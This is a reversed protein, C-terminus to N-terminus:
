NSQTPWTKRAERWWDAWGKLDHGFRQDTLETLAAIVDGKLWDPEDKRDLREVLADLTDTDRQRLRAAAWIAALTTEFYKESERPEAKWPPTLWEVPVRGTGNLGAAHLLLWRALEAYSYKFKTFTMVDGAPLDKRARKALTFGVYPERTLAMPLTISLVASRYAMYDPKPSLAAELTRLTAKMAEQDIPRTAPPPLPEAPAGPSAIYGTAPGWLAGGDNRYTGVYIDNGAALVDIPREGVFQQVHSWNVGDESRWLAGGAGDSSIAVLHSGTADLDRPLGEGPFSLRQTGAGDYRWVSRGEPGDNLAYLAGKFQTLAMVREGDPWGPVAVAKGGVWEFLKPGPTSWATIGLFCREGFTGLSTIRSLTDKADPVRYAEQWTPGGDKSIQLAGDWGGTGALLEGRCAQMAHVHLAEGETFTHWQWTRGDTVAYEGLSANSRPDEFPWYLRGHFVTPEGSDQSALGREYRVSRSTPDFRYIDAANFNAFPESNVLWISGDYAILHSVGPWPGPTSLRVLPTEAHGPVGWAFAALFLLGFLMGSGRRNMFRLNLM